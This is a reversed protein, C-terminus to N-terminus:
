HGGTEDVTYEIICNPLSEQLMMGGDDTVQTGCLSLRQLNTLSSLHKLGDDTIDTGDLALWVLNTLGSLHKLGDDSIRTRDIELWELNTLGSLHKLGDDSIGSCNLNVWVVREVSFGLKQLWQPGGAEGYVYGDSWELSRNCHQCVAPKANLRGGCHLCKERNDVAFAALLGLPGFLFGLLFGIGVANKNTGIIAGIIGCVIWIGIWIEIINDMGLLKGFLCGSLLSFAVAQILSRRNLPGDM